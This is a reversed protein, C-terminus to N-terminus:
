TCVAHVWMPAVRRWSFGASDRMQGFLAARASRWISLHLGEAKCRGRAGREACRMQAHASWHTFGGGHHTTKSRCSGNCTCEGRRPWLGLRPQGAPQRCCGAEGWRSGEMYTRLVHTCIRRSSCLLDTSELLDLRRAGSGSRGDETWEVGEAVALRMRARTWASQPM